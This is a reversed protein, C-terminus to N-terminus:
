DLRRLMVWYTQSRHGFKTVHGFLPEWHNSLLNLVRALKIDHTNWKFAMLAGPVSVRYAEGSTQTIADLIEATTFNGYRKGMDSNIGMNLHPPDYVILNYGTGVADPINRTDCVFDPEMEPRIDLFTAMPHNKNWWIGRPGATLDLIKM